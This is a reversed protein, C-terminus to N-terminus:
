LYPRRPTSHWYGLVPLHRSRCWTSWKAAMNWVLWQPEWTYAGVIHPSGLLSRRSIASNPALYSSSEHTRIDYNPGTDVGKEVTPHESVVQPWWSHDEILQSLLPVLQYTLSPTAWKECPCQVLWWTWHASSHPLYVHLFEFFLKCLLLTAQMHLMIDNDSEAHRQQIANLKSTM